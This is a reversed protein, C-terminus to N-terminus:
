DGSRDAPSRPSSRGARGGRGAPKVSTGRIRLAPRLSVTVPEFAEGAIRRLLLRATAHGLEYIPQAVASLPPQVLPAWPMDDFGVVGIQDPMRLRCENIARLAGLTMVNNAVFLADPPRRLALLEMAAQYGDAERFDAVRILGADVDMGAEELAATYGALRESGTTTHLPGSVCAVREYGSDILHRVAQLAGWHNDVLVTDVGGERPLRRDVLVVPLGQRRLPALDSRESSAPTVIAGAMRESAILEFYRREREVSHDTICVVVFYGSAQAVEEVARIM